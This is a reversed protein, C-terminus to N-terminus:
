EEGGGPRRLESSPPELQEQAWALLLLADAENDDEIVHGGAFFAGEKVAAERWFGPVAKWANAYRVMQAKSARGNGTAWKKLASPRVTLVPIDRCEAELEIVSIQGIQALGSRYNRVTPVEYAVAECGGWEWKMELWARFRALRCGLHDNRHGQFCEVGSSVDSGDCLAWGTPHKKTLGPDIALIRM